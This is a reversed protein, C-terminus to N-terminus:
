YSACTVVQFQSQLRFHPWHQPVSGKVQPTHVLDLDLTLATIYSVSSSETYHLQFPPCQAAKLIPQFHRTDSTFPEPLGSHQSHSYLLFYAEGSYLSSTPPTMSPFRPKINTITLAPPQACPPIKINKEKTIYSQSKKWLLSSFHVIIFFIQSSSKSEFIQNSFDFHFLQFILYMECPLFFSKLSVSYFIGSSPGVELCYTDQFLIGPFLSSSM